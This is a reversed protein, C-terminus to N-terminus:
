RSVRECIHLGLLAEDSGGSLTVANRIIPMTAKCYSRAEGGCRYVVAKTGQGTRLCGQEANQMPTKNADWAAAHTSSTSGCASVAVAAVSLLSTSLSRAPSMGGTDTM